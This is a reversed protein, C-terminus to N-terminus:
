CCADLYARVSGLTEARLRYHAWRGRQERVLLGADVLKRLHHSLTPQSIGLATPLHCACATTDPSDAVLRLLRLRVPDALAKLLGALAEADTAPMLQGPEAAACEITALDRNM